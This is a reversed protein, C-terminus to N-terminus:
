GSRRQVNFFPVNIQIWRDSEMQKGNDLNEKQNKIKKKLAKYEYFM